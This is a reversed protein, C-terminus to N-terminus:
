RDAERDGTRKKSHKPESLARLARIARTLHGGGFEELRGQAQWAKRIAEREAEARAIAEMRDRDGRKQLNEFLDDDRGHGFLQGCKNLEILQDIGRRDGIAIVIPIVLYPGGAVRRLAKILALSIQADSTGAAVRGATIAVQRLLWPDNIELLTILLERSEDLPCNALIHLGAEMLADVGSDLLRFAYRIGSPGRSAIAMAAMESIAHYPSTLLLEEYRRAAPEGSAVLQQMSNRDGLAAAEALEVLDRKTQGHQLPATKFRRAATAFHSWAIDSPESRRSGVELLPLLVDSTQESQDDSAMAMAIRAELSSLLAVLDLDRQRGRELLRAATGAPELAVLLAAWSSRDTNTLWQELAIKEPIASEPWGAMFRGLRLCQLPSANDVWKELATSAEDKSLASFNRIIGLGEVFNSQFDRTSIRTPDVEDTLCCVISALTPESIAGIHDFIEIGRLRILSAVATLARELRSPMLEEFSAMATLEELLFEEVGDIQTLLDSIYRGLGPLSILLRAAETDNVEGLATAVEIRQNRSAEPLIARSWSIFDEPNAHARERLKNLRDLLGGLNSMASDPMVAVKVIGDGPMFEPTPRSSSRRAEVLDLAAATAELLAPYSLAAAESMHRLSTAIKGLGAEDCLRALEKTRSIDPRAVISAELFAQVEALLVSTSQRPRLARSSTKVIKSRPITEAASCRPTM